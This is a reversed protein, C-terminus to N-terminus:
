QFSVANAIRPYNTITKNANALDDQEAKTKDLKNALRSVTGRAENFRQEALQADHSRQEAQAQKESLLQNTIPQKNVAKAPGQSSLGQAPVPVSPPPKNSFTTVGNNVTKFMNDRGDIADNNRAASLGGSNDAQVVPTQGTLANVKDSNVVPTNTDPTQTATKNIRNLEQNALTNLKVQNGQKDWGTNDGTNPDTKIDINDQNGKSGVMNAKVFSAFMDLTHPPYTIQNGTSTQVPTAQGNTVGMLDYGGVKNKNLSLSGDKPITDPYMNSFDKRMGSVNINTAGDNLLIHTGINNFFSHQNEGALKRQYEADKQANDTATRSNTLGQQQLTNQDAFAQRKNAIDNQAVDAANKEMARANALGVQTNDSNIRQQNLGNEVGAQQANQALSAAHQQNSSDISMAHSAIQAANNAADQAMARQLTADKESQTEALTFHKQDTPTFNQFQLAM